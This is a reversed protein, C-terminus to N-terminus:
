TDWYTSGGYKEGTFGKPGINLREDNGSYTCNLQFINFRIAQQAAIDGEIIIDSEDWKKAWANQQNNILDNYTSKRLKDIEKTLKQDIQDKKIDM